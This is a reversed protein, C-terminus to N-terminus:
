VGYIYVLTLNETKVSCYSWHPLEVACECAGSSPYILTRFMNFVYSTFYFYCTVDLRNKLLLFPEHSTSSATNSVNCSKQLTVYYYYYYYYYIYYYGIGTAARNLAHTQPKESAPIAPEFEVPPITTKSKHTNHTTRYLDRRRASWEDLPTRGATAHRLTITFGRYHPPGPGSPATAGHYFFYTYLFYKILTVYLYYSPQTYVYYLSYPCTVNRNHHGAVILVCSSVRKNLINHVM